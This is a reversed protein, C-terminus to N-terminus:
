ISDSSEVGRSISAIGDWGSRGSGGAGSGVNDFYSFVNHQVILFLRQSCILMDDSRPNKPTIATPNVNATVNIIKVLTILL